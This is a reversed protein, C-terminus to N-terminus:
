PRGFNPRIEPLKGGGGPIVTPPQQPQGTGPNGFPPQGALPGGMQWAAQVTVSPLSIIRLIEQYSHGRDDQAIRLNVKVAKPIQNTMKWEDVWDNLRADWFEMAFTKVNKALVLPHAKEEADIEMLVPNQRMVFEGSELTFTVRRVDLDGFKGGRPFSKALRAVFSLVADNGNEAVFSYYRQGQAFSECSGLSDELVRITIRSRQVAAAADQGVRSARLIATWTSYIATLVLGVIGIAILVEVLTFAIRSKRARKFIKM